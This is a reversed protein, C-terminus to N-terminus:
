GSNSSTAVRFVAILVFAVVGLVILATAIIGCIRGGRNESPEPWGAATADRRVGNGMIWAVPGLFLGLCFIGLVLSLIGLWLVTKGRGDFPNAAVAQGYAGYGPQQYGPQPYGPQQYGPQQYGPQQYGPQQYGPQQYGPQGYPGQGGPPPPPPPPPPPTSMCGNHDLTRRHRHM